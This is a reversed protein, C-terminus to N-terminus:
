TKVLPFSNLIREKLSRANDLIGHPMLVAAAIPHAQTGLVAARMTASWAATIQVHLVAARM